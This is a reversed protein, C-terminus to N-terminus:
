LQQLALLTQNYHSASQKLGGTQNSGVYAYLEPNSRDYIKDQYSGGPFSYVKHLTPYIDQYLEYNTEALKTPNVFLGISFPHLSLSSIEM